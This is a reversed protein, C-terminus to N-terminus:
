WNTDTQSILKHWKSRLSRLFHRHYSFDTLGINEYFDSEENRESHCSKLIISVKWVSV